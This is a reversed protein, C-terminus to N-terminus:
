KSTEDKFNISLSYQLGNIIDASPLFCIELSVTEGDTVTVSGSAQRGIHGTEM